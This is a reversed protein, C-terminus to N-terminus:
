VRSVPNAHATVHLVHRATIDQRAHMVASAHRMAFKVPMVTIVPLMVYKAFTACTVHMVHKADLSVLKVHHMVAIVRRLVCRAHQV